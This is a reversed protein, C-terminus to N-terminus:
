YFIFITNALITEKNANTNFLILRVIEDKDLICGSPLVSKWMLNILFSDPMFLPYDEEDNWDMTPLLTKNAM